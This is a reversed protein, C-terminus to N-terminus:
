EPRAIRTEIAEATPSFLGIMTISARPGFALSWASGRFTLVYPGRTKPKLKPNPPQVTVLAGLHMTLEDGHPERFLLFPQGVVQQLYGGWWPAEDVTPGRAIHLDVTGVM